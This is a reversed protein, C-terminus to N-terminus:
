SLIAKKSYNQTIEGWVFFPISSPFTGLLIAGFNHTPLAFFKVFNVDIVNKKFEYFDMLNKSPYPFLHLNISAYSGPDV